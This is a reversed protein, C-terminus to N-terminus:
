PRDENGTRHCINRYSEQGTASPGSNQGARRSLFDNPYFSFTRFCLAASLTDLSSSEQYVCTHTRSKNSRESNWGENSNKCGHKNKKLTNTITARGRNVGVGLTALDTALKACRTGPLRAPMVSRARWCDGPYATLLCFTECLKALVNRIRSM